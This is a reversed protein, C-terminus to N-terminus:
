RVPAGAPEQAPPWGASWDRRQVWLERWVPEGGRSRVAEAAARVGVGCQLLVVGLRGRAGAWRKRAYTAKGRLILRQRGLRTSSAGWEHIIAAEPTIAPHYGLDRARRSLDADESYMFYDPDFGGLEDWTRRSTLLLCGTVVDVERVSDRQWSGLSEPDFLTSRRFVASLGTASCFWSWLTPEGWCSRSDATGDPNLTRGGVLGRRPDERHFALLADLSGPLVEADPNLLVVHEGSSLRVGLNCARGFGINEESLHVRVPTDGRDSWRALVQRTPEASANDVVVVEASCRPAGPGTLATLCREVWEPANYTVVIVSLDVSM